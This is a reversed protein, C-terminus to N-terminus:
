YQRFYCSPSKPAGRTKWYTKAGPQRTRTLPDRGVLRIIWGVPTLVLYYCAGMVLYSSVFGLPYTAYIAALYVPRLCSPFFLGLGTMSVGAFWAIWAVCPSGHRWALAGLVGLFILGLIGFARLDRPSPQTNLRILSM